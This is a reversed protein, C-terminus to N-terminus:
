VRWRGGLWHQFRRGGFGIRSRGGGSSAGRVYCGGSPGPTGVKRDTASIWV